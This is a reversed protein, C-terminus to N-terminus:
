PTKVARLSTTALTINKCMHTIRNVPPTDRPLSFGGGWSPLVGGAMSFGGLLSVGRAPLGGPLSVGLLSFGGGGALSFGGLFSSGRAPLGGRPLFFGGPWPSGGPSPLVGRALSFGRPLFFGGRALSFVGRPLFFGRPLSFGGPCVTLSRVTRMRSSHMRTPLKKVFYYTPARGKSTKAGESIGSGGGTPM